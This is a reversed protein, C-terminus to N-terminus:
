GRLFVGHCSIGAGFTSLWWLGRPADAALARELTLLISPSSVNGYERLVAASHRVDEESLELGARMSALVDRGGAHLVWNRIAKREVGVAGLGDNL